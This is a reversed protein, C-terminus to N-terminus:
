GLCAEIDKLPVIIEPPAAFRREAVLDPSVFPLRGARLEAIHHHGWNEWYDLRIPSMGTSSYGTEVATMLSGPRHAGFALPQQVRHRARQGFVLTLRAAFESDAGTRVPDWGGAHKQVLDKRFMPSAPNFRMLPNVPRAYYVGDDQMRVWNSTTFVIEPKDILPRVQREIRLPHSWDDSDHCTVFEGSARRLGISKAVYTGVNCPLRLYVIRKDAAALAQVLQGTDDTSADDVVIIEIDRYSQAQLSSIASVIRPGANFATMLITVLPGRAPAHEMASGLNMVAPSRTDDLLALPGLAHAALFANMRELQRMPSAPDANSLLLNLEPSQSTQGTKMAQRLITAARENQGLRLLLAAHLNSRAECGQAIELALAPAFPALAAALSQRYPSFGRRTVLERALVTAEVDRGCAALSVARAFAGRWHHDRTTSEAVTRFLSLQYCAHLVNSTRAADGGHCAGLQTIYSLAKAYYKRSLFWQFLARRIM